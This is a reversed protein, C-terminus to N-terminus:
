NLPDGRYYNLPLSIVHKVYDYITGCLFAAANHFTILRGMQNLCVLIINGVTVFTKACNLYLDTDFITPERHHAVIM